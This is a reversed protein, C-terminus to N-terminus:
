RPSLGNAELDLPEYVRGVEATDNLPVDEHEVWAHSELPGLITRVGIRLEAAIRRRRLLWWLTLSETLCRAEWPLIRRNTRTVVAALRQAEERTGAIRRPGRAEPGARARGARTARPTLRGLLGRVRRFKWLRLAVGVLLLTAAVRIAPWVGVFRSGSGHLIGQRRGKRRSRLPGSEGGAGADAM